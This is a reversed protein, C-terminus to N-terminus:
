RGFGYKLFDAFNSVNELMKELEYDGEESFIEIYNIFLYRMIKKIFDNSFRKNFEGDKVAKKIMKDLWIETSSEFLSKLERNIENEKEKLVMTIIRYYKPYSAAFEGAIQFQLKFKDFIDKGKYDEARESLLKNTFEVQIEGAAMLLSLYLAKKDQFHYYFTGKSIGANKIIKNLSANQYSRTTFEDLAAEILENKREFSKEKM